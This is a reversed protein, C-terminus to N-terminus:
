KKPNFIVIKFENCDYGQKYDKIWWDDPITYEKETRFQPPTTTLKYEGTPVTKYPIDHEEALRYMKMRVYPNWELLRLEKNSGREMYKMLVELQGFM